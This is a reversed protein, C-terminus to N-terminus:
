GKIVGLDLTAGSIGTEATIRAVSKRTRVMCLGERTCIYLKTSLEITVVEGISIAPHHLPISMTGSELKGTTDHRWDEPSVSLTWTSTAEINLKSGELMQVEFKLILIEQQDDIKHNFIIINEFMKDVTDAMTMDFVKAIGTGIDVLKICHNNTDAIYMQDGDVCLGGPECLQTSSGDGALMSSVSGKSGAVVRVMHNYSDAIYVYDGGVCVGLPHQLKAQVGDGDVHGYAFLNTPDREGGCLNKVGGDRRSVKRVTSSESDALYLWEQDCCIGSPQALGAKLPYTNNRNEEMGSGVVRIMTGKNYNIGKWWTIDTLCYLWVQHLGAMAVLLGSGGGQEVHCIDWPSSIEQEVGQKGGIKDTGMVGTGVVTNVTRGVLDVCRVRHSDTDCVYLVDGVVCVGQPNNFQADNLGGDKYGAKGNGVVLIVRGDKDGVLLRNHGSDSVVVREKSVEVKGPYNLVRGEVESNESIDLPIGTLMGKGGYWEVMVGVFEEVSEAHGEGMAIWVPRGGPGLILQTPWCTVGLTSWMSAQSDNCVAHRINYRALAHGLQTGNKENEFKASHVGVVV